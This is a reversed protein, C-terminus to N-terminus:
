ASRVALEEAPQRQRDAPTLVQVVFALFIPALARSIDHWQLWVQGTLFPMLAVFGLCAWSLSLDSKLARITFAVAIALTAIGAALNAPDQPWLRAAAILGSFPVLTIEQIQAQEPPWGLRVRVYVGWLLVAAAPAALLSWRAPRRRVIAWAILGLPMLLMVERALAAAAFAAIAWGWNRRDAMWVGTVGLALAAIGAGDVYMENILGLNLAFALGLWPSAGYSSALAATALTGMGLFAINAIVMGWAVGTPPLAGLVGSIAPYIIRQARYAPRDLAAANHAPDLLLPDNALVFFFKGDHGQAERVAVEGLLARGYELTAANDEGFAIFASPDWDNPVLLRIALAAGVVLGILGVLQVQRRRNV